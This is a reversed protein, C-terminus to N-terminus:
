YYVIICGDGGDGGKGGKGGTGGSFSQQNQGDYGASGGGGGGCGGMGGYGYYKSNYETAKPPIYTADAGNGGKANVSYENSTATGNKGTQDLAAGGGSGGLWAYHYGTIAGDYSKGGNFTRGTMFNYASEAQIQTVNAELPDHDVITKYGGNGGKGSDENWKPMQLGFTDGNMINTYGGSSGSESSYSGFTSATGASGANSQSTSTTVAGGVGGTGCSYSYSASPSTIDVEYIKGGSGNSGYNGGQAVSASYFNTNAGGNAGALGSSGGTGGGVMVVHLKEVGTPVTFTGSGTLLEYNSFENGIDVPTYGTVFVCDTKTVASAKGNAEILYGEQDEGFPDVFEFKRGCMCGNTIISNKVKYTDSGYYAMLKAMVNASNIFTVLTADTVSIVNGDPRSSVTEKLVRQSHIYPQATISGKGRVIAGNANYSVITLGSSPTPEGYVPANDFLIVYDGEPATTLSSNDFVTTTNGSASYYHETLEISRTLSVPESSGKEYIEEEPISNQIESPLKSIILNGDASKMMNLNLAFLIQHLTERKSGAGVWGSVTLNEIGDAWLINRVIDYLVAFDDSDSPLPDGILTYGSVKSSYGTKSNRFYVDESTVDEVFAVDLPTGYNPTTLKLLSLEYDLTTTNYTLTNNYFTVGVSSFLPMIENVSIATFHADGYETLNLYWFAWGTTPAIYVTIEDGYSATFSAFSQGNGNYDCFLNVTIGDDNPDNNTKAVEVGYYFDNNNGNYNEAFVEWIPQPSNYTASYVKFVVLLHTQTGSTEASTGVCNQALPVSTASSGTMRVSNYQLFNGSGLGNSLIAEEIATKANVASYMGGYHPEYELLGILSVTSIKFHHIGYREVNKLYFKGVLSGGRYCWIPTAYPLDLLSTSTSYVEFELTDITLENGVPDIGTNSNINLLEEEGFLYDPADLSGIYINYQYSTLEPTPNAIKDLNLLGTFPNYATADNVVIHNNGDYYFSPSTLADVDIYDPM